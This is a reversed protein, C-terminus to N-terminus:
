HLHGLPERSSATRLVADENEEEQVADILELLPTVARPDALDGLAVVADHAVRPDSDQACRMLCDLARSDGIKGLAFVARFRVQPNPSDLAAQMLADVARAGYRILHREANIALTEVDSGLDDIHRAIRRRSDASIEDTPSTQMAQM